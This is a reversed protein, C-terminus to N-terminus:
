ALSIIGFNTFSVNPYCRFRDIDHKSFDARILQGGLKPRQNATTSSSRSSAIRFDDPEFRCEFIAVHGFDINFQTPLQPHVTCWLRHHECLWLIHDCPCYQLKSILKWKSRSYNAAKYSTPPYTIVTDSDSAMPGSATVLASTITSSAGTVSAASGVETSFVGSTVTSPEGYTTPPPPPPYSYEYDYSALADSEQPSRAVHHHHIAPASRPESQQGDVENKVIATVNSVSSLFLAVSAFGVALTSARM